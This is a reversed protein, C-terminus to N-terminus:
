LSGELECMDSGKFFEEYIDEIANQISIYDKESKMFLKKYKAKLSQHNACCSTCGCLVLVIDYIINEKGLEINFKPYRNKLKSVIIGRDYRPNCGGCYKIAINLKTM